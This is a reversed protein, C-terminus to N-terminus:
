DRTSRRTRARARTALPRGIASGLFSGLAPPEHGLAELPEGRFRLPSQQDDQLVRALADLRRLPRAVDVRVEPRDDISQTATREVRDLDLSLAFTSSSTAHDRRTAGSPSRSSGAETMQCPPPSGSSSSALSGPLRAVDLGDGIPDRRGVRRQDDGAHVEPRQQGGVDRRLCAVQQRALAARDLPDPRQDALQM